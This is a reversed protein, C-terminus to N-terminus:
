PIIVYDADITLGEKAFTQMLNPNSLQKDPPVVNLKITKKLCLQPNGQGAFAINGPGVVKANVYYQGSETCFISLEVNVKDYSTGTVNEPIVRLIGIRRGSVKSIKSGVEIVLGQSKLDSVRGTVQNHRLPTDRIIDERTCGDHRAIYNYVDSYVMGPRLMPHRLLPNTKRKRINM